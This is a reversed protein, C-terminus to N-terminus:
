SEEPFLAAQAGRGYKELYGKVRVKKATNRSTMYRVKGFIGREPGWARDYRGLVWFIGSVSNPDRGDLAYRDNLSLMVALAERPSPSWKLIKKGWLMRLYNHIRGEVVLQRQAANWLDDHTEARELEGRTYVHARPDAAHEEMTARAWKPLAEWTDYDPLWAAGNHGVERWTVLQDLFAEANASMGWWGERRGNPPPTISAPSWKEVDAVQRFVEHASIHGFHLWPSLGSTVDAEPENGLEVYRPLGDRLFARLKARAATAGGTVGPVPAPDGLPLRALLAHGELEELSAAPWRKRVGAPLGPPGAGPAAALPRAAPADGLLDPLHQHIWRRFAYATPFARGPLKLPVLGCSDVTEFRVPLRKAAVRTMRPLFFGPHDDGVVTVAREALAALLGSGAGPEPEVYPYYTVPSDTTERAHEAMGDMVFRHFRTCAYPYGARIAELIVLPKGHDRALRLAHDLAHNWSLRRFATMWYLVYNGGPRADHGNRRRIRPDDAPETM